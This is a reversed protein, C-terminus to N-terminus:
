KVSQKDNGGEQQISCNESYPNIHRNLYIKQLKESFDTRFFNVNHKYLLEHLQQSFQHRFHFLQFWNIARKM